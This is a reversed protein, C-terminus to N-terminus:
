AGAANSLYVLLAFVPAVAVLGDIRDLLGGHGPILTGSDKVGARRKLWSEFLDGAQALAALAAGGLACGAITLPYPTFSACVAGVLAAALMGGFLGAWTKNPSLAPALKPGGFQRGAFYAGIDTAWVIFMLYLVVHAGGNLDSAFDLNRLWLVSACPVAVYAFGALQWGRSENQTLTEWEKMMVLAALLILLTFLWGGFWEAVLLLVIMAAGSLARLKLGSWRDNQPEM